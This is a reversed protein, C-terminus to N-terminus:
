CAPPPPASAAVAATLAAQNASHRAAVRQLHEVLIFTFLILDAFDVGKDFVDLSMDRKNSFLGNHARHHRAIAVEVTDVLIFHHMQRKWSCTHERPDKFERVVSSFFGGKKLFENLTSHRGPFVVQTKREKSRWEVSAIEQGARRLVTKKGGVARDTMVEYRAAANDNRTIESHLPDDRLFTFTVMTLANPYPM